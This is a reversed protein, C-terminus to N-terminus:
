GASLREVKQVVPALVNEQLNKVVMLHMQKHWKSRKVSWSSQNGLGKIYRFGLFLVGKTRLRGLYAVM